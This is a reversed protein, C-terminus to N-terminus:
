GNDNDNNSNNNNFCCNPHILQLPPIEGKIYRLQDSNLLLGAYGSTYEQGAIYKLTM